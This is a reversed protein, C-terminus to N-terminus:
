FYDEKYAARNKNEPDPSFFDLFNFGKWRPLKNKSLASTSFSVNPAVLVGGAALSSKKVFSRRDLHSPESM